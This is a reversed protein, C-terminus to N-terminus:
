RRPSWPMSSPMVSHLCGRLVSFRRRRGVLLRRCRVVRGHNRVDDFDTRPLRRNRGPPVLRDSTSTPTGTPSPRVRGNTLNAPWGTRLDRLSPQRSMSRLPLTRDSRVHTGVTSAMVAPRPAHSTQQAPRSMRYCQCRAPRFPIDDRRGVVKSGAGRSAMSASGLFDAAAV